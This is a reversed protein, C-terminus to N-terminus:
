LWQSTDPNKKTHYLGVMPYKTHVRICRYQWQERLKYLFPVVRLYFLITEQRSYRVGIDDSMCKKLLLYEIMIIILLGLVQHKKRKYILLRFPLHKFALILFSKIIVM